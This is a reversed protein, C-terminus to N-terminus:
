KKALSRVFHVVSWRDKEPLQQWPPMSGRGTSIKWFLGGDTETQVVKSSLDKPKPNLAAGAPGDGKGAPGHCVQCNLEFVKRGDKVGAEHPLPNKKGKEAAPATWAADGAMAALTGVGLILVSCGGAMWQKMRRIVM